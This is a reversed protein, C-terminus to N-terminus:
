RRAQFPKKGRGKTPRAKVALPEAAPGVAPLMVKGGISMGMLAEQYSRPKQGPKYMTLNDQRSASSRPVGSPAPVYGGAALPVPAPPKVVVVGGKQFPLLGGLFGGVDRGVKKGADGQGFTGGILGGGITGLAGGITEGIWGM